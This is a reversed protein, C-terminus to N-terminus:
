SLDSLGGWLICADPTAALGGCDFASPLDAAIELDVKSHSDGLLARNCSHVHSFFSIM